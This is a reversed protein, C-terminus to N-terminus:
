AEVSKSLAKGMLTKGVGPVDELLIHEDSLMAILCLEAVDRKGLVVKSINELLTNASVQLEGVSVSTSPMEDFITSDKKDM